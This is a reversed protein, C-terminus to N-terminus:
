ELRIAEGVLRTNEPRSHLYIRQLTRVSTGVFESVKVIDLGCIFILYSIGSHRLDHWRLRGQIGARRKASNWATYISRRPRSPDNKAPFVYPSNLKQQREFRAVLRLRIWEPVFIQRGRKTRSGTKVDEPRLTLLGTKLDFRDWTLLMGESKRLCCGYSLAYMDKGDENMEEYLRKATDHDIWRGPREEAEELPIKVLRSVKRKRYGYRFLTNLQVALYRFTKRVTGGKGAKRRLEAQIEKDQKIDPLRDFYVEEDFDELLVDGFYKIIDACYSIHNEQTRARRKPSEYKLYLPVLDAVTNESMPTELCQRKWNEIAAPLQRRAEREPIPGFNHQMNQIKLYRFSKVGFISRTPLYMRLGGGLNM